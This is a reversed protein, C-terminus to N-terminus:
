YRFRLEDVSESEAGRQFMYTFTHEVKLSEYPFNPPLPEFPQSLSIASLAASDADKYGSSELVASNLLEGNKAVVVGVVLTKNKSDVPPVWHSRIRKRLSEVYAKLTADTVIDTTSPNLAGVHLIFGRAEKEYRSPLAEFPALSKVASVLSMDVEPNDSSKLLRAEQLEGQKSIELFILMDQGQYAQPLTWKELILAKLNEQYPKFLPDSVSEVLSSQMMVPQNGVSEGAYAVPIVSLVLIGITMAIVMGLTDQLSRVSNQFVPQIM